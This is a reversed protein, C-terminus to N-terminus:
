EKRRKPSTPTNMLVTGFNPAFIKKIIEGKKIIVFWYRRSLTTKQSCCVKHYEQNTKLISGRIQISGRENPTIHLFGLCFIIYSELESSDEDVNMSSQKSSLRHLEYQIQQNQADLADMRITIYGRLSFLEDMIMQNSPIAASTSSQAHFEAPNKNTPEPQDTSPATPRDTRHRYTRRDHPVISFGMKHIVEFVIKSEHLNLTFKTEGITSVGFHELIKTIFIVYPLPSQSGRVSWMQRM